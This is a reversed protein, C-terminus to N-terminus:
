QISGFGGTELDEQRGVLVNLILLVKGLPSDRDDDQSSRFPRNKSEVNLTDDGSHIAGARATIRLDFDGFSPNQRGTGRRTNIRTRLPGSARHCRWDFGRRFSNLGAFFTQYQGGISLERRDTRSVFPRM